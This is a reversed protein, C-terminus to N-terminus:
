LVPNMPKLYISAPLCLKCSDNGLSSVGQILLVCVCLFCTFEIRVHKMELNLMHRTEPAVKHGGVEQSKAIVASLPGGDM